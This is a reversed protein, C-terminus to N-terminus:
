CSNAPARERSRAYLRSVGRVLTGGAAAAHAGANSQGCSVTQRSNMKHEPKNSFQVLDRAPAWSEIRGVYANGPSLIRRM